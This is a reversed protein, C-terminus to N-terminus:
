ASIRTKNMQKWDGSEILPKKEVDHNYTYVWVTRGEETETEIRNYLDPYGEYADLHHVVNESRIQFVDGIVVPEDTNFSQTETKIGPYWGLSFMKGNIRDSGIFTMNMNKELGASEGRRLTGYVFLLDGVNM